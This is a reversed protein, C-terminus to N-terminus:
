LLVASKLKTAVDTNSTIGLYNLDIKTTNEILGYRPAYYYNITNTLNAPPIGAVSISSSVRIANSYSTTNVTRAISKEEIKNTITVALPVGSYTINYTQAWSEGAAVGAKLYLNEVKTGGLAAPLSQFTYYDNGSVRYYESAGTSSNLFVHYTKGDITSDRNTSSVIYTSTSTPATNNIADYTRSSGATMNMYNESTAAPDSPKNKGCSVVLFCLLVASLHTNKM